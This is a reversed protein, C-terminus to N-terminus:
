SKTTVILTCGYRESCVSLFEELNQPKGRLRKWFSPTQNTGFYEIEDIEIITRKGTKEFDSKAQEAIAM